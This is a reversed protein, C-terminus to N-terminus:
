IKTRNITTPKRPQNNHYTQNSTNSVLINILANAIEDIM